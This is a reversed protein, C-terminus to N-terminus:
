LPSPMLLAVPFSDLLAAVEITGGRHRTGSLQDEWEGDGLELVTGQWDGNVRAVLRPVVVVAEGGRAFAVVNDARTGRAQIPAYSGHPGFLESNRARLQLLKRILWLKPLGAEVGEADALAEAATMDAARELLARRQAYDVPRRNDPDVLSLDWLETGQYIDPVGPATLRLMTQALSTAHWHPTLQDIFDALRDTFTRDALVERTFERVSREYAENSDTWSTHVKAERIAKELYAWLRDYDIPWAGVLTQYLLYETNADPWEAGAPRKGANLSRWDAVEASWKEPMESLLGIRIRVDESRKTDHTTSALMTAPWDRQAAACFAHFEAVSEGFRGPDGGVENLAVLRHYRYFATDEVGKAM